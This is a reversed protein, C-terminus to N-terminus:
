EEIMMLFFLEEWYGNVVMLEKFFFIGFLCRRYRYLIGYSSYIWLGLLLVMKLYCSRVISKYM